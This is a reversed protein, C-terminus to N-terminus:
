SLIMTPPRDFPIVVKIADNNIPLFFINKLFIPVLVLQTKLASDYVKEVHYTCASCQSASAHQEECCFIGKDCNNILSLSLFISIISCFILFNKM